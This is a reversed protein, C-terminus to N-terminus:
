GKPAGRKNRSSRIKLAEGAKPTFPKHTMWPFYYEISDMAGQSLGDNIQLLKIKPDEGEVQYRILFFMLSDQWDDRPFTPITFVPGAGFPFNNMITWNRFQGNKRLEVSGTGLGGLAIGSRVRQSSSYTEKLPTKGSTNEDRNEKTGNEHPLCGPLAVMSGAAAGIAVHTLFDRRKM